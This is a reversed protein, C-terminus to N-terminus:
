RSAMGVCAQEQRMGCRVQELVQLRAKAAGIRKELGARTERCRQLEARRQERMTNWPLLGNLIMYFAERAVVDNQIGAMMNFKIRLHLSIAVTAFKNIAVDIKLLDRRMGVDQRLLAARSRMMLLLSRNIEHAKDSKQYGAVLRTASIEQAECGILKLELKRIECDYATLISFDGQLAQQQDKIFAVSDHFCNEIDEKITAQDGYCFYEQYRGDALIHQIGLVPNILTSKVTLGHLGVTSPLSSRLLLLQRRM